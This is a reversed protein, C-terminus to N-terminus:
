LAAHRRNCDTLFDGRLACDGKQRDRCSLWKAGGETLNIARNFQNFRKERGDVGKLPNLNGTYLRAPRQRIAGITTASNRVAAEVLTNARSSRATCAAMLASRKWALSVPWDGAITGNENLEV